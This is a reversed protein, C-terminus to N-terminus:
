TGMGVSLLGADLRPRTGATFTNGLRYCNNSVLIAAAREHPEDDPGRWRLNPKVNPGSVDPVAELLTRLKAGRYAARQVASGYIGLSVSNVFPLGNVEGLDVRREVGDVFADLAGVVDNRDVGLDLAFHNRTGAPICAYPLGREAAISAVVAQSGDGGAMALADAGDEIARLVLQDLQDDPGLELPTIGRARAEDALHFRRAKGDGSRPNWFMVPHAPRPAPPLQVRIRFAARGTAVAAAPTVLSGLVLAPSGKVLLFLGGAALLVSLVLGPVCQLGRRILGDWAARVALVLLVAGFLARPFEHITLAFMLALASVGLALTAFAAFRRPM